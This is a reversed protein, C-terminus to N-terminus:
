RLLCTSCDHLLFMIGFTVNIICPCPNKVTISSVSNGFDDFFSVLVVLRHFEPCFCLSYRIWRWADFEDTCNIFLNM